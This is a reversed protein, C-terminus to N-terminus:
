KIKKSAVFIEATSFMRADFMIVRNIAKELFPLFYGVNHLLRFFFGFGDEKYVEFGSKKLLESLEKFRFHQHWRKEVEVDGILGNVCHEFHKEYYEKGFKRTVYIRHINPFIFKWNGFDLFSFFHKGPVAVIFIGNKKLVRSLEDLLATQNYVHELVGIMTVCDFSENEFPLPEGKYILVLSHGPMLLSQRSEVIDKNLDLSIAKGVIGDKVFQDLMRGDYAGYDLVVSEQGKLKSEALIEWSFAQGLRITNKFPNNKSLKTRM